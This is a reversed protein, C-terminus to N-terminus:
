ATLGAGIRPLEAPWNIQADAPVVDLAACLRAFQNAGEIARADLHYKLCRTLYRRASEVQWGLAPGDTEAIQGAQAVGRDRAESLVRSLASRGTRPGATVNEPPAPTESANRGTCLGAAVNGTPGTEATPGTDSTPGTELRDICYAWVAFVFPHGTHQRWAGGLDVEYAFSGRRPDVVKDGILLVAELDDFGRASTDLRRLELDRGHIERWLVRALAVSTHSDADVWLTRLRDPPVQSFVRVTMTEGDCGICADSVVRYRDGGRLVDVIPILAADVEGRDLRGPLAAPVDFVMRVGPEAALGAILPRANLFSVVGLRFVVILSGVRNGSVGDWTYDRDSRGGM